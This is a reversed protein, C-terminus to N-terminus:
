LYGMNELYQIPRYQSGRSTWLSHALKLVINHIHTGPPPEPPAKSGRNSASKPIPHRGISRHHAWALMAHADRCCGDFTAFASCDLECEDSVCQEIEPPRPARKADCRFHRVKAHPQHATACKHTGWDVAVMAGM